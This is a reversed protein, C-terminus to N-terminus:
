PLFKIGTKRFYVNLARRDAASGEYNFSFGAIEYGPIKLDVMRQWQDKTSGELVCQGERSAEFGKVCVLIEGDPNTTNRLYNFIRVRQASEIPIFTDTVASGGSGKAQAFACLTALLFLFLTKM